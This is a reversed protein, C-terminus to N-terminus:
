QNEGAAVVEGGNRTCMAGLTKADTYLSLFSVHGDV